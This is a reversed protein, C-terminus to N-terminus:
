ENFKTESNEDKDQVSFSVSGSKSKYKLLPLGTDVDLLDRNYQVRKKELTKAFRELTYKGYMYDIGKGVAKELTDYCLSRFEDDKITSSTVKKAAQGVFTNIRNFMKNRKQELKSTMGLSTSSRNPYGGPPSGLTDDNNLNLDNGRKLTHGNSGFLKGTIAEVQYM